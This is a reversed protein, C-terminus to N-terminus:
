QHCDISLRYAEYTGTKSNQSIAVAASFDLDAWLATLRGGLDTPPSVAMPERDPVEFARISDTPEDENSSALIQWGLGCGSRVSAIESGWGFRSFAQDTMGDLFHVQGDVGTLAWLTYKDKPLPAASYFAPAITQKQIGPSLAGTFFNRSASFFASLESPSDALPWPDDSDDCTMSLPLAADSRCFVGPLYADFLHDKRLALRGRLDRPWPRVHVLTAIQDPQWHDGQLRYLITREPELVILHSPDGRLMAVDLIRYEGKLLLEKRITVRPSSHDEITRDPASVSTMVVVPESTGQRIQAVWLYSRLNESLTVEVSEAPQDSNATQVGYAALEATLRNRIEEVDALALSSRNIVTVGVSGPGTIGAIQRALQGVPLQWNMAPATACLFVALFVVRLGRHKGIARM